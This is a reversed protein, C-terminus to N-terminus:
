LIVKGLQPREKIEDEGVDKVVQIRELLPEIEVVHVGASTIGSQEVFAGDHRGEMSNELGEEETTQFHVDFLLEGRLLLVQEVGRKRLLLFVDILGDYGALDSLIEDVLLRIPLLLFWDWLQLLFRL